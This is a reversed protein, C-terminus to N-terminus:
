SVSNMSNILMNREKQFSYGNWQDINSKLLELLRYPIRKVGKLNYIWGKGNPRRQSFKKGERRIVQFLLKGREDTYPFIAEIKGTKSKPLSIGLKKCFTHKNGKENCTQCFYQGTDISVEFSPTDDRGNSHNTGFPCHGTYQAGSRQKLGEVHTSYFSLYDEKQINQTSTNYNLPKSLGAEKM